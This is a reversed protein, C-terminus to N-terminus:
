EQRNVPMDALRASKEPATNRFSDIMFKGSGM